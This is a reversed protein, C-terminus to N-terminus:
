SGSQELHRRCDWAGLPIAGMFGGEWDVRAGGLEWGSSEWYMRISALEMAGLEQCPRM